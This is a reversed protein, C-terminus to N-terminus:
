KGEIIRRLEEETMEGIGKVPAKQKKGEIENLAKMAIETQVNKDVVSGSSMYENLLDQYMKKYQIAKTIAARFQTPSLNKPEPFALRMDNMEKEGGAVGTAWKRFTLFSAEAPQYWNMYAATQEGSTRFLTEKEPQSMKAYKELTTSLKDKLRFPVESFEDRYSSLVNELQGIAKNGEVIEGEIKNRTSQGMDGTNVTVGSTEKVTYGPLPDEGYRYSKQGIVKGDSGLQQQVGYRTTGERSTYEEQLGQPTYASKSVRLNRQELEQPTLPERRPEQLTRRREETGPPLMGSLVDGQPAGYGGGPQSPDGQPAVQGQLGQQRNQSFQQQIQKAISDLEMRAKYKDASTRGGFKPDSPDDIIAQQLKAAEVLRSVTSKNAEQIYQRRAQLQDYGFQDEKLAMGREELDRNRERLEELKDVGGYYVEAGLDHAIKGPVAAIGSVTSGILDFINQKKKAM